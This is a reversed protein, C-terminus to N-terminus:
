YEDLFGARGLAPLLEHPQQGPHPPVPPQIFDCPWDDERGAIVIRLRDRYTTAEGVLGIARRERTEAFPIRERRAAEMPISTFDAQTDLRFYLEVLTGYRDRVRLRVVPFPCDIGEVRRQRLPLRAKM